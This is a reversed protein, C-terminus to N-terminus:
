ERLGATELAASQDTYTCVRVVKGGRLTFV